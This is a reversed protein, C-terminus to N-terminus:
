ASDAHEKKYWVRPWLVTVECCITVMVAVEAASGECVPAAVTVRTGTATLLKEIVADAGVGLGSFRPCDAVEVTVTVESFANLLETEKLQETCGAGASAGFHEALATVGTVSPWAVAVTMMLVVPGVAEIAGGEELRELRNRAQHSGM